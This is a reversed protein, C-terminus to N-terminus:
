YKGYKNPHNLGSSYHYREPLRAVKRCIRDHIDSLNMRTRYNYLKYRPFDDEYDEGWFLRANYYVFYYDSYSYKSTYQRIVVRM